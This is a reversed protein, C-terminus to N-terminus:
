KRKWQLRLGSDSILIFKWTCHRLYVDLLDVILVTEKDGDGSVNWQVRLICRISLWKDGALNWFYQLM